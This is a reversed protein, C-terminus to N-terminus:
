LAVKGNRIKTRFAQVQDGQIDHGMQRLATAIQPGSWMPDQVLQRFAEQESKPLGKYVAMVKDVKHGNPKGEALLSKLSM